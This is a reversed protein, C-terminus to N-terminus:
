ALPHLSIPLTCILQWLQLRVASPRVKGRSGKADPWAHLALSLRPQLRWKRHSGGAAQRHPWRVPRPGCVAGPAGEPVCAQVAGLCYLTHLNAACATLLWCQDRRCHGGGAFHQWMRQRVGSTECGAQLPPAQRRQGKWTGAGLEKSDKM